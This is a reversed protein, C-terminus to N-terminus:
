INKGYAAEKIRDNDRRVLQALIRAKGDEVRQNVKLYKRKLSEYENKLGFEYLVDKVILRTCPEYMQYKFYDESYPRTSLRYHAMRYLRWKYRTTSIVAIFRGLCYLFPVAWASQLYKMAGGSLRYLRLFLAVTTICGLLFLSGSPFFKFVYRVTFKVLLGNNKYFAAV